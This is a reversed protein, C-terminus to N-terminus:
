FNGTNWIHVASSVFEFGSVGLYPFINTPPLNFISNKQGLCCLSMNSFLCSVLKHTHTHTHKYLIPNLWSPWAPELSRVEPSGGVEAEWLAPIVPTLWPVHGLWHTWVCFQLDHHCHVLTNRLVCHALINGWILFHVISVGGLLKLPYNFTNLANLLPILYM